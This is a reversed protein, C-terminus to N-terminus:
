QSIRKSLVSEIQMPSLNVGIIMGSQDILYTAPISHVNFQNAIDTSKEDADIVNEKWIMQDNAVANMWADKNKDLSVSFIKFTGGDKMSVNQFKSYLLTLEQNEYRCPGCWSAWFQLLVINGKLSYLSLTDGSQDPLRIDRIMEGNTFAPENYQQYYKWGFFGAVTLVLLALVIFINKKKM